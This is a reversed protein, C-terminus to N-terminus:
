TPGEPVPPPYSKIAAEAAIGVKAQAAMLGGYRWREGKEQKPIDGWWENPFTDNSPVASRM